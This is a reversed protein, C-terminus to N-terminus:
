ALKKLFTSEAKFKSGSVEETVVDGACRTLSLAPLCRSRINVTHTFVPIVVVANTQRERGPDGEEEHEEEKEEGEQTEPSRHRRPLKPCDM